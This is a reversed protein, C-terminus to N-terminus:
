SERHHSEGQAKEAVWRRLAEAPVRVGGRIRIVPLEGMAAMSYATSRSMGLLQAVENMKLLLREMLDKEGRM